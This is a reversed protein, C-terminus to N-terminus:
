KRGALNKDVTHQLDEVEYLLMSDLEAADADLERPVAIDDLFLPKGKREMHIPELKAKNLIAAQSASASIFIDDDLLLEDLCESDAAQANFKTALKNAREISRNIVTIDRVGSGVLNQVALEGMEGAGFIAVKKDDIQDFKQKALEVAAYSVSVANES